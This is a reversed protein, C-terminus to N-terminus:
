DASASHKKLYAIAARMRDIDDSFYGLGRNCNVCLLGRVKKTTHCHDVGLNRPQGTKKNIDQKGGCISCVGGQERLMRDYDEVSLGFVRKWRWAVQYSKM